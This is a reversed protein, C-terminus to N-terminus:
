SETATKQETRHSVHLAVLRAIVIAIFLQGTLAELSSFMRSISTAPTIDGYGLTTLSVFSFYFVDVINRFTDVSFFSGSSFSFSAPNIIILLMYMESYALGLILYACMAGYIVHTTVQKATLIIRMLNVFIFVLFAFDFSTNIIIISKWPVFQAVWGFVVAPIALILATVILPKTEQSAGIALVMVITMFIELCIVVFNLDAMIPTMVFLLVLSLLLFLARDRLWLKKLLRVM